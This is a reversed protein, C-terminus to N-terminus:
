RSSVDGEDLVEIAASSRWPGAEAEIRFRGARLPWFLREGPGSAGIRRGNIKWTVSDVRSATACWAELALQQQNRPLSPDLAYISGDVPRVIELAPRRDPAPPATIGSGFPPRLGAGRFAHAVRGPSAALLSEDLGDRPSCDPRGCTCSTLPPLSGLGESRAWQEYSAPVSLGPRNAGASNPLTFREAVVREDPTCTRARCGNTRDLLARVHWGCRRLPPDDRLFWEEIRGPCDPGAGEGSLPCIARAEVEQPPVPWARYAANAPLLRDALQRLALVAGATGSVQDMASGSARGIWVGATWSETYAIAWNDRWDSSTGTKIAVPQEFEFPGDRGFAIARARPDALISTAFFASARTFLRRGPSLTSDPNALSARRALWRGEGDRASLLEVRPRFVGGRALASYATVLDLLRVEGVGLVLGLGYTEAPQDLSSLGAARLTELLPEVGEARALAVAPSNWSNALALRARVPGRWEETYNGPTFVGDRGQFAAPLDPLLSAPRLGKDFALAYAFPKLASGPQRLALAADFQGHTTDAFNPSGVWARVEATANDLVVVAGHDAGRSSLARLAARLANEASSQLELDIPLTIESTRPLARRARAIWHPAIAAPMNSAESPPALGLEDLLADEVEARDSARLRRLVRNRAELAAGPARRPDLRSPAQPLAALLSAESWSLRDAGHGFYTQSAAEVGILNPGYPARDLYVELISDKSAHAELAIAARAEHLKQRWGRARSGTRGDAELLKVVQQTLTSGGSVIFGARLDQWAARGLAWPDVGFHSRFRGDEAALTAAVLRPDVSALKTRLYREPARQEVCIERGFRDRVTLVSSARAAPPWCAPARSLRAAACFLLATALPLAALGAVFRWVRPVRPGSTRRDKAAGSM